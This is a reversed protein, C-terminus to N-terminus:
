PAQGGSGRRLSATRTATALRKGGASRAEARLTLRRGLLRTGARTRRLRVTATTGRFRARGTALTRRRLLARVRCERAAVGAITCRVRLGARASVRLRPRERPAGADPPSPECRRSLVRPAEMTAPESVWIPTSVTVITTGRQVQLRWRGPTAPVRLVFEGGAAVPAARVPLGDHVVILQLGPDGHLVKATLTVDRARITDGMIAVDAVGPARAELRVDPGTAGTVKAYTHGARVGCRIAQESLEPALVATAGTGIPSQTFGGPTRGANHSDSVGVAAIHNGSQLAREYFDLALVTFPNPGTGGLDQLGAFGTAVEIADVLRLDTEASSYDWPCGRCFLPFVPVASPFITPHNLQTFGGAERVAALIAGAPRAGRRLVPAGGGVPLEYVPGTRHDVYRGSLHNNTHGRYTIVESSRGILRRPHAGQHRGIEGWASDTVYDSLLM